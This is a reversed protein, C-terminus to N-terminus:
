QPHPTNALITIRGASPGHYWFVRYAAPTNQQAYAESVKEGKPGKLSRFEHPQLSRHRPNSDLLQITKRVSKCRAEQSADEKLRNCTEGASRTWYVEFV